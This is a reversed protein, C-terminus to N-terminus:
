IPPTGPVPIPEQDSFEPDSADAAEVHERRVGMVFLISDLYPVSLSTDANEKVLQKANFAIGLGAESLMDLDNAGDGVAVTQSLPIGEQAALERLFEGKRARDVVRGEVEGTLVGDEVALTNALSFDIGMSRAFPDTFRTFGASVIATKMGMRKLTRIFTRAGPTPKIVDSVEDFVSVPLGKLMAVRERLAPEFDIEGAMARHTIEAVEPGRGAKEALVDIIEGQILTSDVDMVVLRKARRELSEPQIAVDIPSAAAAELLGRRIVDPDGGSVALEYSIVPYRSLRFIRDINGGGGAIAEAVAGFDQPTVRAGIVTVVYARVAEEPKAEIADFEIRLENEWGYFLLESITSRSEGVGVLIALTLRGRVVIQEVDYIEAGTRALVDMLGATIGPRDDANVTVLITSAETM